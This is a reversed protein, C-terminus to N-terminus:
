EEPATSRLGLKTMKQRLSVPHMGITRAMAAMNGDHRRLQLQLFEIEFRRRAERFDDPMGGDPPAADITLGASDRLEAPLLEVQLLDENCLIAMREAINHLERLNGPWAYRTLCFEVDGTIGPAQRGLRQSEKELMAAFINAIDERRERLPPLDLRFVNLRFYFDERLAGSKLLRQLDQNTAALLRIDAHRLTTEGVRNFERQQLFRLLKVQVEQALEGVEDLFLTGGDSSELYGRRTTAAGTFAGKAHGFLESELLAASLASCNVTVFAEDARLSLSQIHRALLEKGTGNEGTILVTADTGAVQDAQELLQRFRPSRTPFDQLRQERRSSNRLIENKRRLRVFEDIRQLLHRLIDENLPKVVYDFAGARMAGVADQASDSSTVMVCPIDPRNQRLSIIVDTGSMGPMFQDVLVLEPEHADLLWLARSGEEAVVPEHGLKRLLASTKLRFLPDDDILLIDM